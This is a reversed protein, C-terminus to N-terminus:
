PPRARNSVGCGCHIVPSVPVDPRNDRELKGVSDRERAIIRHHLEVAGPQCRPAGHATVRGVRKQEPLPHDRDELGAQAGGGVLEGRTRGAVLEPGVTDREGIYLNAVRSLPRAGRCLSMATNMGVAVRHGFTLDAV